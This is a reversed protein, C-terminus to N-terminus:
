VTSEMTWMRYVPTFRKLLDGTGGQDPGGSENINEVSVDAQKVAADVLNDVENILKAIDDVSSATNQALKSIETAVM